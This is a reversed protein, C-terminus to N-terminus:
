RGARRKECVDSIWSPRRRRPPCRSARRGTRFIRNSKEACVYEDWAARRQDEEDRGARRLPKAVFTGPDDVTFTTSIWQGGDTLKQREIVHLSKTHPTELRDIPAKDDLGITDIVLTDGNEYHGVSERGYWSYGPNKSHQQNMYIRRAAERVQLIWVENPKQWYFVNGTFLHIGPVGGPWCRSTTVFPLIEGADLRKVIQNM